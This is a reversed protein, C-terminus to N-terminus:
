ARVLRNQQGVSFPSSAQGWMTSYVGPVPLLKQIGNERERACVSCTQEKALLSGLCWPTRPPRPGDTGRGM